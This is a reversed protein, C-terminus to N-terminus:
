SRAEERVSALLAADYRNEVRGLVPHELSVSAEKV